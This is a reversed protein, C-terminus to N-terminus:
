IIVKFILSNIEGGFMSLIKVVKEENDLDGWKEVREVSRGGRDGDIM